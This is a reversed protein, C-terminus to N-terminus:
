PAHAASRARPWPLSGGRSARSRARPRRDRGSTSRCHRSERLRLRMERWAGARIARVSFGACRKRTGRVLAARLRLEPARIGTPRHPRRGRASSASESQSRSQVARYRRSALDQVRFALGAGVARLRSHADIPYTLGVGPRPQHKAVDALRKSILGFLQDLFAPSGAEAMGVRPRTGNVARRAREFGVHRM